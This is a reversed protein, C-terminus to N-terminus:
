WLKALDSTGSVNSSGNPLHDDIDWSGFDEKLSGDQQIYVSTCLDVDSYHVIITWNSQNGRQHM